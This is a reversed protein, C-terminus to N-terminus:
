GQNGSAPVDERKTVLFALETPFEFRKISWTTHHEILARFRAEYSAEMGKAKGGLSHVPFSVVIYAARIAQLLRLGAAKDVQELCPLAKLVFAVDVKDTPCAQIVNCVRAQGQVHMLALFGNLFSVMDQYMDCAYYEMPEALSMWPLALPHLGCALDLVSHIPPLEALVTRYFQALIPLRERTSAHYSMIRELYVLLDDQRDLRVLQELDNLWLDYHMTGALYAGGVQHLKNKAAKVAEKLSARRALERSGIDRILEDSIGKYRSSVLVTEVLKELRDNQASM